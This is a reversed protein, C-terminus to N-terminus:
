RRGVGMSLMKMCLIVGGKDSVQSLLFSAKGPVDVEWLALWGAQLLLWCETIWKLAEAAFGVAPPVVVAWLERVASQCEFVSDWSNPRRICASRVGVFYPWSQEWLLKLSTMLMKAKDVVTAVARLGAVLCGCVQGITALFTWIGAWIAMIDAFQPM